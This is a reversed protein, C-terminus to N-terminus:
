VSQIARMLDLLGSGQFYRARGLDTAATTFIKKVADTEGIFERRISLFAAIAGSVHPAAMSTGSQEFYNCGQVAAEKVVLRSDKAACSVIKEGPALLDPKHRGDGTPGKSSFYSVGYMHPMDRHTSGVTIAEEANGPDNITLELTADWDGEKARLTGYGSNGAAIVVVVGSKVLRNVEVCLPSHGCAFWKPEFPYGLSLNVGHIHMERGHHNIEQVHTLASIVSKASGMGFRDLVKLSILRCKPAMGSIAELAMQKPDDKEQNADFERWAVIMERPDSKKEISQEGAIIGAVHTGHGFQDTFPDGPGSAVTFDAHYPSTIDVNHNLRFHPHDAQIGSDIVAWAIEDGYATFSRHAADAKITAISKTICNRLKFDPWVHHIKLFRHILVMKRQKILDERSIPPMADPLKKTSRRKKPKAETVPQDAPQPNIAGLKLDIEKTAAAEAETAAAGQDIAVLKKIVKGELCAFVYQPILKMAKEDVSQDEDVIGLENKAQDIFEKIRAQAVIRSDSTHHQQLEEATPQFALNIDITVDFLTPWIREIASVGEGRDIALLERIVRGDLKALSVEPPLKMNPDYPDIIQPSAVTQPGSKKLEEVAEKLRELAVRRAEELGGPFEKRHFVAANHDKLVDPFQKLFEETQTLEQEIANWLPIAITSRRLDKPDFPAPVRDLLSHIPDPMSDKFLL